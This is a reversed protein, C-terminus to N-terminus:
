KWINTRKETLGYRIPVSLEDVTSTYLNKKTKPIYTTTEPSFAVSYNIAQTISDIIDDYRGKPYSLVEELVDKMWYKLKVSPMYINGAIYSPVTAYIRQLKSMQNSPTSAIVRPVLRKLTDYLANGNAKMEVLVTAGVYNKVLSLLANVQDAFELKDRVLDILYLNNDKKGIVAFVSYDAEETNEIALDISIIIEDFFNSEIESDYFKIWNEKIVNGGLTVPNQMYMSSYILPEKKISYYYEEPFRAPCILEGETTRPDEWGIPNPKMDFHKTYETPIILFYWDNENEKIWGSFDLHAIRQQINLWIPNAINTRNKLTGLYFDNVKQLATNSLAEERSNLDDLIFATGGKGLVKSGVSTGIRKGGVTNNFQRKTNQHDSLQFLKKSDCWYDKFWSHQILDRANMTFQYILDMSHSATFVEEQPNRLWMWCPYLVSVIKSKGLRPQINICLKKLQQEGEYQAQLHDVIASIHWSDIFPQTDIYQWAKKVFYMLSQECLKYEEEALKKQLEAITSKRAM